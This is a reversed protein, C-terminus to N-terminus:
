RTAMRAKIADVAAAARDAHGRAEEALGRSRRVCRYAYVLNACAAVLVIISFTLAWVPNMLGM